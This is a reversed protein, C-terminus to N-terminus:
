EILCVKCVGYFDMIFEGKGKDELQSRSSYSNVMFGISM